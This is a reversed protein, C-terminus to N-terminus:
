QSSCDSYQLLLDRLLQGAPGLGEPQPVVLSLWFKKQVANEIKLAVLDGSALENRIQHRPIMSFGIGQQLCALVVGMNDVTWRQEAKLWGKDRSHAPMRESIVIQLHGSLERETISDTFQALCHSRHVVALMDVEAISTGLYGQPVSSTIALDVEKKEIATTTAGIVTDRIRLRCGQSLPYFAKLTNFLCGTPFVSEVALTLETEWGRSLSVATRQLEEANELLRTSRRFLVEGEETLKVAKGEVRLLQIGLLDQMKALAHHLSSHSKNLERGAQAYGGHRVVANFIRWQELTVPSYM